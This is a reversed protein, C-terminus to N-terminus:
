WVQEHMYGSIASAFAALLSLSTNMRMGATSVIL